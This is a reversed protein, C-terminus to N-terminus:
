AAAVFRNLLEAKDLKTLDAPVHKEIKARLRPELEALIQHHIEKSAAFFCADVDEPRILSSVRAALQRVLRKRHELAINHREGSSAGAGGGNAFRGAKDSLKDALKEHAAAWEVEELLELRPTRGLETHDLKYAKLSSLDAVVVLKNKM